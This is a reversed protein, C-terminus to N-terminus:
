HACHVPRQPPLERLHQGRRSRPQGKQGRVRVARGGHRGILQGPPEFAAAQGPAVPERGAM